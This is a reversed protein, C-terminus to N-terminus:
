SGHLTISLRVRSSEDRAPRGDRMHASWDDASVHRFRTLMLIKADSADRFPRRAVVDNRFVPVVDFREGVQRAAVDVAHLNPLRFRM